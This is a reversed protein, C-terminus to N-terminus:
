SLVHGLLSLSEATGTHADHTGRTVGLLQSAARPLFALLLLGPSAPSTDGRHEPAGMEPTTIGKPNAERAAIELDEKQGEGQTQLLVMRGARTSSDPQLQRPREGKPCHSSFTVATDQAGEWSFPSM